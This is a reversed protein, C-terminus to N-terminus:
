AHYGFRGQVRRSEYFLDESNNLSQWSNKNSTVSFAVEHLQRWSHLCYSSYILAQSFTLLFFPLIIYTAPVESNEVVLIREPKEYDDFEPQWVAEELELDLIIEQIRVNREKIRAIEFEKQKYAADFENNFATKVKYIIDQFILMCSFVCGM